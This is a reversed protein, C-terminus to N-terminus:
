WLGPVAQIVQASQIPYFNSEQDSGLSERLFSNSSRVPGRPIDTPIQDAPGDWNWSVRLFVPGPGSQDGREFVLSYIPAGAETPVSAVELRGQWGQDPSLTLTPQQRLNSLRLNFNRLAYRGQNLAPNQDAAGTDLSYQGSFARFSDNPQGSQSQDALRGRVGLSISAAWVPAIAVLSLTVMVGRSSWNLSNM